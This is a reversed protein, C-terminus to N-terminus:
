KNSKPSKKGPLGKENIAMKGTITTGDSVLDVDCRGAACDGNPCLYITIPKHQRKGTAQGSAADRPAKVANLDSFSVRPSPNSAGWSWSMIDTKAEITFGDCDNDRNQVSFNGNVDTKTTLVKGNSCKLTVTANRLPEEATALISGAFLLIAITLISIHKKM